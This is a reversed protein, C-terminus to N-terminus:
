AIASAHMVDWDVILRKFSFQEWEMFRSVRLRGGLYPTNQRRIAVERLAAADTVLTHTYM